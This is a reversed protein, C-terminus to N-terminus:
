EDLLPPGPMLTYGNAECAQPWVEEHTLMSGSISYDLQLDGDNETHLQLWAHVLDRSADYSKIGYGTAWARGGTRPQPMNGVREFSDTSAHYIYSRTEGPRLPTEDYGNSAPVKDEKSEKHHDLQQDPSQEQSPSADIEADLLAMTAEVVENSDTGKLEDKLTCRFVEYYATEPDQDGELIMAVNGTVVLATTFADFLRRAREDGSRQELAAYYSSTEMCKYFFKFVEDYDHKEM